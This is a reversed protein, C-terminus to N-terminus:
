AEKAKDNTNKENVKASKPSGMIEQLVKIWMTAFPAEITLHIITAVVSSLCFIGTFIWGYM